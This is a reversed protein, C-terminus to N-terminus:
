TNKEKGKKALLIFALTQHQIPYSFSIFRQFRDNGALQMQHQNSRWVMEMILLQLQITSSSHNTYVFPMYRVSM